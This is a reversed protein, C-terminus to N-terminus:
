LARRTKPSVCTLIDTIGLRYGCHITHYIINKTPNLTMEVNQNMDIWTDFKGSVCIWIARVGLGLWCM